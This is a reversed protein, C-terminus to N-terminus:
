AVDNEDAQIPTHYALSEMSVSLMYEQSAVIRRVFRNDDVLM